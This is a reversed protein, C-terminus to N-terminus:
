KSSVEAEIIHNVMKMLVFNSNKTPICLGTQGNSTLM